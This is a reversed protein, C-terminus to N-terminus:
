STKKGMNMRAQRQKQQLSRIRQCLDRLSEAMPSRGAWAEAVSVLLHERQSLLEERELLAQCHRVGPTLIHEPSLGPEADVPLAKAAFSAALEIVDELRTDSVFLPALEDAPLSAVLSEMFRNKAALQRRADLLSM